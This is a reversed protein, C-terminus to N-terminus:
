FLGHETASDSGYFETESFVFMHRINFAFGDFTTLDVVSTMVTGAATPPGGDLKSIYFKTLPSTGVYFTGNYVQM